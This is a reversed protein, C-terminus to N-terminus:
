ISRFKEILKSFNRPGYRWWIKLFMGQDHEFIKSLFGNEERDLVLWQSPLANKTQGIAVLNKCCHSLVL